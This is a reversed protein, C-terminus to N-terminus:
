KVKKLGDIVRNFLRIVYRKDKAFYDNYGEISHEAGETARKVEDNLRENLDMFLSSDYSKNVDHIAVKVAGIACWRCANKDTVDCSGGLGDDNADRTAVRAEAYRTWGQDIRKIARNLIKTMLQAHKKDM